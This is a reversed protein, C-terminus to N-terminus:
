CDMMQGDSQKRCESKEWAALQRSMGSTHEMLLAYKKQSIYRLDCMLRVYVQVELLTERMGAIIRAKQRTRNARYILIIIEMVKGRMEQGLTYRCDRPLDPMMRSVELMLSYSAQYIPLNTYIAM